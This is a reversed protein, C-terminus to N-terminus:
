FLTRRVQNRGKRKSVYLSIDAGRLLDDEDLLAEEDKAEFFALGISITVREGIGKDVHPLNAEDVANLIDHAIMTVVEEEIQQFIILFEDGGYRYIYPTLHKASRKLIYAVKQIIRDGEVHGYYDNYEKFYDIDCMLTAINKKDRNYAKLLPKIDENLAYRNFLNSLGDLKSITSLQENLRKMKQSKLSNAMAIAIYSAIARIMDLQYHDFGNNEYKQLSFVGIIMEDVVLPAYYITEYPVDIGPFNEKFPEYDDLIMHTLSGTYYERNNRIVWTGLSGKNVIPVDYSKEIQGNHYVIRKIIQGQEEDYLGIVLADFKMFSILKRIILEVLADYEQEKSIDKSIEYIFRMNELLRENIIQMESDLEIDLKEEIQYMGLEYLNTLLKEDLILLRKYNEKIAETFPVHDAITHILLRAEREVEVDEAKFAYDGVILCYELAQEYKQSDFMIRGVMLYCDNVGIVDEDESFREIAEQINALAVEMDGKHHAIKGQILKWLADYQLIDKKISLLEHFAQAHHKAEDFNGNKLYETILNYTTLFYVKYNHEQKSFSQAEEYYYLARENMKMTSYLIAINNLLGGLSNTKGIQKSIRLSQHYYDLAIAYRGSYSNINGLLNSIRMRVDGLNEANAIKITEIALKHAKEVDGNYFLATAFNSFTRAKVALEDMSQCVDYLKQMMQFKDANSLQENNEFQDNIANIMSIEM